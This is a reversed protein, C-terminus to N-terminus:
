RGHRSQILSPFESCRQSEPWCSHYVSCTAQAIDSNCTLIRSIQQNLYRPAGRALEDWDRLLSRLSDARMGQGDIAVPVVDIGFPIIGIMASPYTWESALIAEGKNCLTTLARHWSFHKCFHTNFSQLVSFPMGKLTVLISWLLLIKM